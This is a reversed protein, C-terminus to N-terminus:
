VADRKDISAPVKCRFAYPVISFIEVCCRYTTCASLSVHEIHRGNQQVVVASSTEINVLLIQCTGAFCALRISARACV